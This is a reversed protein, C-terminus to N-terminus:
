QFSVRWQTKCVGEDAETRPGEQRKKGDADIRIELYGVPHVQLVVLDMMAVIGGESTLSHMTFVYPGRQFGLKAYWPALQSSNGSLILKM